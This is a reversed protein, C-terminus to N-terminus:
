AAAAKPAARASKKAALKNLASELMLAPMSQGHGNERLYDLALPAASELTAAGIEKQRQQRDREQAQARLRENDEKIDNLRKAEVKAIEAREEDAKRQEAERQARAEDDLRKRDATAADDDAKRKADAEAKQRDLEAREAQLKAAAEERVAAAKAMESLKAFSDARTALAITLYDGFEDKGIYLEDLMNAATAIDASGAMVYETPIGALAQIRKQITTIRDREAAERATKEEAKRREERKIQEDIPEELASLEATIRKAETDILNCRELAPAKIEKRTKELTVRIERIEARAVKAEAMGVTTEVPYVAGAYKSRLQTLGGETANYEQIETTM